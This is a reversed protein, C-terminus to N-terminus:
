LWSRKDSADDTTSRTEEEATGSTTTSTSGNDAAPETFIETRAPKISPAAITKIDEQSVDVDRSSSATPTANDRLDDGSLAQIDQEFDVERQWTAKFENTTSRFDALTKGITRAIQPLKRPGLFILAVIGIAILEPTGISEFVFLFLFM